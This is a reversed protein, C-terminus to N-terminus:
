WKLLSMPFIGLLKLTDRRPQGPLCEVSPLPSRPILKKLGGYMEELSSVQVTGEVPNLHTRNPYTQRGPLQQGLTCGPKTDFNGLLPVSFINEKLQWRWHPSNINLTMHAKNLLSFADSGLLGGLVVQSESGKGARCTWEVHLFHVLVKSIFHWLEDPEGYGACPPFFILFNPDTFCLWWTTLRECLFLFFGSLFIQCYMFYTVSVLVTLKQFFSLVHTPFCFLLKAILLYGPLLWYM